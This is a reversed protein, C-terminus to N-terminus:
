NLKKWSKYVGGKEEFMGNWGVSFVRRKNSLIAYKGSPTFSVVEAFYEKTIKDKGYFVSKKFTLKDGIKLKDM